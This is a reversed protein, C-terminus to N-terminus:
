LKKFDPFSKSELSDGIKTMLEAAHDFIFFHDGDYVTVTVTKTSHVNWQEAEDKTVEDDSGYFVDIPIDVAPENRYQYNEIAKFDARLIGEFFDFLMDNELVEKPSGGLEILRDKFQEKPLDYSPSEEDIISPAGRGSVYLHLPPPLNHRKIELILLYSVVAGMSHGYIAYPSYLHSKVQELADQIIATIDSLLMETIRSGRGPLDIPVFNLFDPVHKKFENYSYRSGGAFPFALLTIKSKM